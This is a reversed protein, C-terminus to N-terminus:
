SIGVKLPDKMKPFSDGCKGHYEEHCAGCTYIERIYGWCNFITKHTALPKESHCYALTCLFKGSEFPFNPRSLSHQFCGPYLLTAKYGLSFDDKVVLEKEFFFRVRPFDEYNDPTPDPGKWNDEPFRFLDKKNGLGFYVAINGEEPMKNSNLDLVIGEAGNFDDESVVNVIVNVVIDKKTEM